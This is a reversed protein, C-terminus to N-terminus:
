CIKVGTAILYHCADPAYRGVTNSEAVLYAALAQKSRPWAHKIAWEPLARFGYVQVDTFGTWLARLENAQWLKMDLQAGHRTGINVSHRKGCAMVWFRGGPVLCRHIENAVENPADSHSLVGFLSVASHMSGSTVALDAIDGVKFSRGPHAKAAIDVMGPSIDIGYYSGLPMKPFLRLFLGTGCGLDLVRIKTCGDRKLLTAVALEEAAYGVAQYTTDYTSAISDYFEAVRRVAFRNATM